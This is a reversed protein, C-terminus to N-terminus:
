PNGADGIDVSYYVPAMPEGIKVDPVVWTLTQTGDANNIVQPETLVPQAFAAGEDTNEVINGKSGGDPSSAAQEYKGGFYATGPKYTMYKPLVDVITIDATYDYHGEKEYYTRPQLMFDAVRQNTDLNFNQKEEGNAAKQM